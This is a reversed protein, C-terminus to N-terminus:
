CRIADLFILRISIRINAFYYAKLIIELKEIITIIIIELMIKEM